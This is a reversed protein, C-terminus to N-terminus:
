ITFTSHVLTCVHWRIALLQEPNLLVAESFLGFDPKLSPKNIVVDRGVCHPFVCNLSSIDIKEGVSFYFLSDEVLKTKVGMTNKLGSAFAVTRNIDGSIYHLFNTTTFWILLRCPLPGNCMFSLFGSNYSDITRTILTHPLRIVLPKLHSPSTMSSILGLFFFCLLSDNLQKFYRLCFQNM